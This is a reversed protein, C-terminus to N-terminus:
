KFILSYILTNKIKGVVNDLGIHCEETGIIVWTCDDKVTHYNRKFSRQQWFQNDFACKPTCQSSEHLYKIIKFNVAETTGTIKCSFWGM